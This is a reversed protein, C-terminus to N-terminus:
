SFRISYTTNRWTYSPHRRLLCYAIRVVIKAKRHSKVAINETVELREPATEELLGSIYDLQKQALTSLM